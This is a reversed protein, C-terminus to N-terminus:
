KTNIPNKYAEHAQNLLNTTESIEERYHMALTVDTCTGSNVMCRHRYDTLVKVLQETQRKTLNLQVIEM